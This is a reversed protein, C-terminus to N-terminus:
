PRGIKQDVMPVRLDQDENACHVGFFGTGGRRASPEECRGISLRPSRGSGGSADSDYFFPRVGGSGNGLAGSLVWSDVGRHDLVIIFAKGSAMASKACAFWADLSAVAADGGPVLRGHRIDSNCEIPADGVVPRVADFFAEARDRWFADAAAVEPPPVAPLPGTDAACAATGVALALAACLIWGLRRRGM